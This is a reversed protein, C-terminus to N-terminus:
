GNALHLIYQKEFLIDRVCVLSQIGSEPRSAQRGCVTSQVNKESILFQFEGSTEAWVQGMVFVVFILVVM